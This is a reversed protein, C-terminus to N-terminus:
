RAIDDCALAILRELVEGGSANSGNHEYQSTVWTHMQPLLAATQLSYKMPIYVDNAYVIAACPVQTEGLASADYLKPWPHEALIKACATWSRLSSDEDFWQPLVHEGTLLTSDARFEDPLTRAAAWRTAVGDAYSSEHIVTYLPNRGGFPLLDALDYRFGRSGPDLELLYHLTTAGGSHGLNHGLSRLRSPSVIDGNPTRIAEEDALALLRRMRDRDGPFRRYFEESKVAMMRYCAAYIDECGRGVAPLGGTFYGALLSEPHSSLYHLLTFGGFSQGLVAWRDIGLENRLDECDAVIEDARMHTLYEAQDEPAGIPESVPSSLGTGRQDLLVLQYDDLASSLWGPTRPDLSPRPSECGPGGQLFLLYPKDDGDPLSVLRAFIDIGREDLSDDHVLPVTIRIQRTRLGPIRRQWTM